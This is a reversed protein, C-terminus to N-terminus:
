MRFLPNTYIEIGSNVASFIDQPVFGTDLCAFNKSTIRVTELKSLRLTLDYNIVYDVCDFIV